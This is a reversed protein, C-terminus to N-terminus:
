FEDLWASLTDARRHRCSQLYAMLMIGQEDVYGERSHTRTAVATRHLKPSALSTVPLSHLIRLASGTCSILSFRSTKLSTQLMCRDAVRLLIMRILRITVTAEKARVAQM